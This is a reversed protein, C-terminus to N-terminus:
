CAWLRGKKTRRPSHCTGQLRPTRLSVNCPRQDHGDIPGYHSFGLSEFWAEPFLFHKVGGKLRRLM